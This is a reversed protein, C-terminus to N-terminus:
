NLPNPVLCIGLATPTLVLIDALGLPYSSPPCRLALLPPRCTVHTGWNPLPPKTASRSHGLASPPTVIGAAGKM